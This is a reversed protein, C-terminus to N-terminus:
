RLLFRRAREIAAQERRDHAEKALVRLTVDWDAVVAPDDLRGHMADHELVRLQLEIETYRAVVVPLREAKAIPYTTGAILEHPEVKFLGALLAVTRESPVSM